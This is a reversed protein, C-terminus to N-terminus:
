RSREVTLEVFDGDEGAGDVVARRKWRSFSSYSLERRTCFERQSLGSDARESIL